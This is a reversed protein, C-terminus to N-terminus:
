TSQCCYHFAIERAAAEACRTRVPRRLEDPPPSALLVFLHDRQRLPCKAGAIRGSQEKRAGTRMFICRRALPPTRSTRPAAAAAAALSSHSHSHSHSAGKHRDTRKRTRESRFVLFYSKALSFMPRAYRRRGAAVRSHLKNADNAENLLPLLLLLPRAPARARWSTRAPRQRLTPALLTALCHADRSPACM